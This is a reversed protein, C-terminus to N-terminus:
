GGLHSWTRTWEITGDASWWEMLEQREGALEELQANIDQQMALAGHRARALLQAQEHLSLCAMQAHAMVYVHCGRLSIVQGSVGVFLM